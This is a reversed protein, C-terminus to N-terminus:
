EAGDCSYFELNKLDAKGGLYTSADWIRPESWDSDLMLFNSRGRLEFAAVAVVSHGGSEREGIQRPVWLRPDLLNGAPNSGGSGSMDLLRFPATVMDPGTFFSVLVPIGRSTKENVHVIASQPDHFIEKRCRLGFEEGYGKMIGLISNRHQTALYYDNIARVLFRTRGSETSFTAALRDNGAVRTTGIQAFLHHLAYGTCTGDVQPYPRLVRQLSNRNIEVQSRDAFFVRRQDSDLLIMQDLKGDVKIMQGLFLGANTTTRGPLRLTLPSGVGVRAGARPLAQDIIVDIKGGGVPMGFAPSGQGAVVGLFVFFIRIAGM